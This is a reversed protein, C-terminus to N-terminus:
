SKRERLEKVKINQAEGWTVLIKKTEPSLDDMSIIMKLM